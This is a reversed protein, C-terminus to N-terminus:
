DGGLIALDDLPAWVTAVDGPDLVRPAGVCWTGDRVAVETLLEAHTIGPAVAARTAGYGFVKETGLVAHVVRMPVLVERYDNRSNEGTYQELMTGAVALHDAHCDVMLTPRPLERWLSWMWWIPPRELSELLRRIAAGVAVHGHHGDLPHPGVVLEAGHRAVIEALEVALVSAAGALDDDRSLGPLSPSRESRFGAVALAADLEAARREHDGPRGLGAAVNVVTWGADRLALLTCPVALSEDDPHPAVHVVTPM